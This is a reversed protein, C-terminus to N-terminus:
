RRRGARRSGPASRPRARREARRAEDLREALRDELPQGGAPRDDRRLDAPRGLEDRGLAAHEDVGAALVVDEVAQAARGLQRARVLGGARGGGLVVDPPLRLLDLRDQLPGGARGGGRSRFALREARARRRRGDGRRRGQADREFDGQLNTNGKVVVTHILWGLMAGLPPAIIYIWFDTCENGVLATGFSRAPNVSSGSFQVIAFHIALLTLGIAVFVTSGYSQSKTVQLIVLMFIASCFLEAFFAARVGGTGPVTAAKAVDDSSSMLLLALGALIAGAFQAIWYPLVDKARMRRDLFLALSVIPNFHGGSVEGFAYLGALLGIGFAFPAASPGFGIVAGAGVFVLMFTGFVEALYQQVQKQM